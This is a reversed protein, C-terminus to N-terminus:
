RGVRWSVSREATFREGTHGDDYVLRVFVPGDRAAEADVGDPWDIPVIFRYHTGTFGSRYADRIQEPSLEMRVITVADTDPLIAAHIRLTGLLPVFRGRSDVPNVYLRLQDLDDDDRAPRGHSFRSIEIGTVHPTAALVEEPVDARQRSLRRIEARLETNRRELAELERELLMVRERLMDAETSFDRQCGTVTVLTLCLLMSLLKILALRQWM